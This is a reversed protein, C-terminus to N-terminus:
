GYGEKEFGKESSFQSKKGALWTSIVFNSVILPSSKTNGREFSVSCPIGFCGWLVGFSFKLILKQTAALIAFHSKQGARVKGMNKKSTKQLLTKITGFCLYSTESSYSASFCKSCTGRIRNLWGDFHPKHRILAGGLM